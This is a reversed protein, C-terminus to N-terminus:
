GDVEDRSSGKAVRVSAFVLALIAAIGLAAFALGAMALTALARSPQDASIMLDVAWAMGPLVSVGIGVVVLSFKWILGTGDLQELGTENNTSWRLGASRVLSDISRQCRVSDALVFGMYGLGVTVAGLLVGSVIPWEVTAVSGISLAAVILYARRVSAETRKRQAFLRRLDVGPQTGEPSGNAHEM